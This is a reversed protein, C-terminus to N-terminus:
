CEIGIDGVGRLTLQDALKAIMQRKVADFLHSRPAPNGQRLRSQAVPDSSRSEMQRREPVPQFRPQQHTGYEVRILRRNLLQSGPFAFRVLGVKPGIAGIRQIPTWGQNQKVVLGTSRTVM